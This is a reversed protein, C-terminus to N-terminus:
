KQVEAATLPKILSENMHADVLRGKKLIDQQVTDSTPPPPIGLLNKYFQLTYDKIDSKDTIRNNDDDLLFHIQNPRRRHSMSALFFRSNEDDDKLWQMKAHYQLQSSYLKQINILKDILDKEQNILETNVYDSDTKKQVSFLDSRAQDLHGKAILNSFKSNNLQKLKGKLRKLKSVLQFMKCCFTFFLFVLNVLNQTRIILNKYGNMVLWFLLCINNDYRFKAECIRRFLSLSSRHPVACAFTM